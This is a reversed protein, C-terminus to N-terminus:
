LKTATSSSQETIHQSEAASFQGSVSGVAHQEDLVRQEASLSSLIKESGRRSSDSWTAAIRLALVCLLATIFLEAILAVAAWRQISRKM